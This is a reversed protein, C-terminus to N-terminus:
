AATSIIVPNALFVAAPGDHRVGTDGPRKVRYSNHRARKVVRPYSRHRRAPNLNRRDTIDAM